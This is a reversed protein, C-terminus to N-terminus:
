AAEVERRSVHKSRRAWHVISITTGTISVVVVGLVIYYVVTSEAMRLIGRGFWIALGGLVMFRVFRAVGVIPLLKRLPYQLSALTAVFVTYPFPPPMMAAFAMTWGAQKELKKRVYTLRKKPIKRELAEEGGKRALFATIGTGIVSGLAAMLAYLLVMKPRRVSLAVMLLDNGLPMFLISSDLIGLGLLGFPGLSVFFLFLHRVLTKM